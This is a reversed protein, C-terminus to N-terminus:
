LVGHLNVIKFEGQLTGYAFRGNQQVPSISTVLLNSSLVAINEGSYLDWVRLTYDRSASLILNKGLVKRIFLIEGDHGKFERICEGNTIDWQCIKYDISGSFLTSEEEVLELCSVLGKHAEFRLVSEGKKLDWYRISGDMYGLYLNDNSDPAIGTTIQFQNQITNKCEGSATDWIKMTDDSGISLIHKDNNIFALHVISNDHGQYIRTKEKHELDWEIIQKDWGCSILRKEDKSVSMDIIGDTHGELIDSCKGSEIDWIRLTKDLSATIIRNGERNVDVQKVSDKHGALESTIRGTEQDRIQIVKRSTNLIYKGSAIFHIHNINRYIGSDGTTLKSKFIDWLRVTIDYKGGGGSIIYKMDPTIKLRRIPGVHGEITKICSYTNLNWIKITKDMSGSVLFKGDHTIDLCNIAYEHGYLTKICEGSGLDWVKIAVKIDRGDYGCCSFLYKKDVSMKVAYGLDDIDRFERICKKGPIDWVYIVNDYGGSVGTKGDLSIDVCVVDATHMRFDAICEMKTTDWVKVTDDNSCSIIFRGEPTMRLDNIRNTHGTLEGILELDRYNWLRIVPDQSGGSTAVLNLDPTADLIKLYDLHPIVTKLCEGSQLDWLKLSNDNSGSVAYKGDCTLSVGLVRETHEQLVRLCPNFPNFEDCQEKEFLMKLNKCKKIYIDVYGAFPGTGAYNYAQQILYGAKNGYRFLLHAQANLFQLFLILIDRKNPASKIREIEDNIQRDSWPTFSEISIEKNQILEPNLILQSTYQSMREVYEREDKKIDSVEPLVAFAANYDKILEYVMKHSCKQIIFTFDLLLEILETFKRAEILHYPLYTLLYTDYDGALYRNLLYECTRKRGRDMDILYKRGSGAAGTLWDTISKHYPYYCGKREPFFAYLTQMKRCIEFESILLIPSLEKASFPIKLCTIVELIPRFDDFNECKSFIRDFNSLYIGVLGDPYSDVDNIDIRDTEIGYIFQKIYLFNGESKSIIMDKTHQIDSKRDPLKEIIKQENFKRDLYASIDRINEIRGSDIEHPKYKSLLDFIEPIKRSSVVVKVKEPLDEIREHLVRVINNNSGSWSEDLADIIIVVQENLEISKLPDAILRRFLTGSDLRTLLEFDIQKIAEHYEKIQTALQSAVSRVFVDPNISDALSSICFHFAMVQPHKSALQAMISSKGIGPDGSIIFVKGSSHNLWYEVEDFLWQRGTFDKVMHSIDVGFDLPKLKSFVDAYSGEVSGKDQLANLIRSFARKYNKEEPWEQFDVWDLRYISLPPRCQLVMVPVIKRNHFRAMSIEDLCVGDPRRVAHPSLLCIFIDHSLIAEEIQEEWSLGTKIQEKDLWINHGKEKLDNAIKHALEGSDKRGYSIFITFSRFPSEAVETASLIQQKKNVETNNELSDDHQLYLLGVGKKDEAMDKFILHERVKEFLDNDGEVLDILERNTAGHYEKLHTLIKKLADDFNMKEALIIFL